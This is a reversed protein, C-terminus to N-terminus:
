LVSSRGSRARQARYGANYYPTREWIVGAILAVIASVVMWSQYAHFHPGVLPEAENGSELLFCAAVWALAGLAGLCVWKAMLNRGDRKPDPRWFMHLLLKAFTVAAIFYVGVAVWTPVASGNM